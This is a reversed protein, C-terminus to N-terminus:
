RECFNKFCPVDIGNVLMIQQVMFETNERELSFSDDLLPIHRMKKM